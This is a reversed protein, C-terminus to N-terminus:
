VSTENHTMWYQGVTEVITQFDSFSLPKIIYSNAGCRYCKSIDGPAESDSFIVIPTLTLADDTDFSRIQALVSFGDAGPLSLDLLILKPPDDGARHTWAGRCFLFDLAEMGDGVAMVLVDPIANQLALVISERQSANDEVVLIDVPEYLTM